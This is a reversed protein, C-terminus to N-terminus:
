RWWWRMYFIVQKAKFHSPFFQERPLLRGM